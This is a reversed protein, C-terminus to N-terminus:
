LITRKYIDGEAIEVATRERGYYEDLNTKFPESQYAIDYLDNKISARTLITKTSDRFDAIRKGTLAGNELLFIAFKNELNIDEFELCKEALLEIIEMRHRNPLVTEWSAHFGASRVYPRKSFLSILQLKHIHYKNINLHHLDGRSIKNTFSNTDKM